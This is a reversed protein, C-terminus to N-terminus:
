EDEKFVEIEITKIRIRGIVLGEDRLDKWKGDSVKYKAKGSVKDQKLTRVIKGLTASVDMVEVYSDPDVEIVKYCGKVYEQQIWADAHEKSQAKYSMRDKTPDIPVIFYEFKKKPQETM